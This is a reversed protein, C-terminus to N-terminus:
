ARSPASPAPARRRRAPGVHPHQQLHVVFQHELQGLAVDVGGRRHDLPDHGVAASGATVSVHREAISIPVPWLQPAACQALRGAAAASSMSASALPPRVLMRPKMIRSTARTGNRNM